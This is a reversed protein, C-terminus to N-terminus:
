VKINLILLRQMFHLNSIENRQWTCGRITCPYSAPPWYLIVLIQVLQQHLRFPTASFWRNSSQIDDVMSTTISTTWWQRFRCFVHPDMAVTARMKPAVGMLSGTIQLVDQSCQAVVRQQTAPIQVCQLSSTQNELSPIKNNLVLTRVIQM